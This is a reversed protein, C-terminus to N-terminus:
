PDDWHGGLEARAPEIRREGHWGEADEMREALRAGLTRAAAILEDKRFTRQKLVNVATDFTGLGFQLESVMRPSIRVVEHALQVAMALTDSGEHDVLRLELTYRPRM